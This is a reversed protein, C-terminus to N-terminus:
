KKKIVLFYVLYALTLSFVLLILYGVQFVSIM